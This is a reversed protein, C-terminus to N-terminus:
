NVGVMVLKGLFDPDMNPDSLAGARSFYQEVNAKHPLHSATMKFVIEHLPFCPVRILSGNAAHAHFVVDQKGEDLRFLHASAPTAEDRPTLPAREEANADEM